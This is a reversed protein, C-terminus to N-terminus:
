HFLFLLCFIVLLMFAVFLLMNNARAVDYPMIKGSHLYYLCVVRVVLICLLMLVLVIIIAINM